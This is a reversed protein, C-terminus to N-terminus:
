ATPTLEAPIQWAAALAPELGLIDSVQKGSRWATLMEDIHAMSYGRGLMSNILALRTLHEDGYLSLRGVHRPPPLLGKERYSRINRTTTSSLRALEDIRYQPSPELEGRAQRTATDVLRTLAAEVDRSQRGLAAPTRAVHEIM